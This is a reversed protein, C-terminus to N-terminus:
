LMYILYAGYTSGLTCGLAFASLWGVIFCMFIRGAVSGRAREKRLDKLAEEAFCLFICGILTGVSVVCFAAILKEIM